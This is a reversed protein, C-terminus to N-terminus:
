NLCGTFYASLFAFVDGVGIQGSADLDARVDGSFYDILFDFIDQVTAQGDVNYDAPCAFNQVYRRMPQLIAGLTDTGGYSLGGISLMEAESLDAIQTHYGSNLATVIAEAWISQVVRQPHVEDYVFGFAGTEGALQMAIPVNGVLAQDRIFQNPGFLDINLRFLDLFVIHKEIALARASDRCKAVAATVQDRLSWAFHNNRIFRSFNFDLTSLLVIKGGTPQITEIITRINAIREAVYADIQEPTWTGRYIAEYAPEGTSFDNGGIMIVVYQAGFVSVSSAAGVHQGEDIAWGTRAGYRAWNDRYGSRRPEDWYTVGAEAATPGMDIRGTQVLIQTWSKGVPGYDQEAYEDTYSDGIAAVRAPQPRAFVPATGISMVAVVLASLVGLLKM